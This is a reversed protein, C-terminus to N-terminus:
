ITPGTYTNSGSLTLTSGGIEVLEGLGSIVGTLTDHVGDTNITGGGTGLSVNESLTISSTTMLTGNDLTLTASASGLNSASGIELISGGEVTTGGTYTNTGSVGM